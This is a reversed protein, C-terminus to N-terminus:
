CGCDFGVSRHLKVKTLGDIDSGESNSPYIAGAGTFMDCHEPCGNNVVDFSGEPMASECFNQRTQMNMRFM